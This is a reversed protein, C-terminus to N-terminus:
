TPIEFTELDVGGDPWVRYVCKMPGRIIREPKTSAPNHATDNRNLFVTVTIVGDTVPPPLCETSYHRTDVPVRHSLFMGPKGKVPNNPNKLKLNRKM